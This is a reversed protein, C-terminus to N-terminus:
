GTADQEDFDEAFLADLGIEDINQDGDTTIINEEETTTLCKLISAKEEKTVIIKEQKESIALLLHKTPSDCFCILDHTLHINNIWHQQKAKNNYCTPKFCHTM